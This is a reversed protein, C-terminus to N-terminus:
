LAFSLLQLRLPRFHLRSQVQLQLQVVPGIKELLAVISEEYGEFFVSVLGNVVVQQVSLGLVDESRLHNCIDDHGVLHTKGAGVVPLSHWHGFEVLDSAGERAPM